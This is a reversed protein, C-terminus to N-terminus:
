KELKDKAFYYSGWVGITDGLNCCLIPPIPRNMAFHSLEEQTPIIKKFQKIGLSGMIIIGEPDITNILIGLGQANYLRLQQLYTLSDEREFFESVTTKKHGRKIYDEIAKGSALSAWCGQHGLCEPGKTKGLLINHGAEVRREIAEGNITYAVGIGTSLSVLCFNQWKKGLGCSMEARLAMQLDNAFFLKGSLFPWEKKLDIPHILELPPSCQLTEEAVPGPLGISTAHIYQGSPLFAKLEQSLQALTKTLLNFNGRISPRTLAKGLIKGERILAGRLSTGGIDYCAIIIPPM